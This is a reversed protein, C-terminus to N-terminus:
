YYKGGEFENYISSWTNAPSAWGKRLKRPPLFYYRTIRKKGWRPHKRKAWLWVFRYLAYSLRNRLYYSQSMNFYNTWGRIIPNLKKILTYPTDNYSARFINKIEKIKKKYKEKLPFCAIGEQILKDNFLSSLKHSLVEQPLSFM